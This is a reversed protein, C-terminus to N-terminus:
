RRDKFKVALFLLRTSGVQVEDLHRLRQTVGTHIRNGNLWTGNLSELDTLWCVPGDVRVLCHCESVEPDVVVFDAKAGRGVVSESAQIRHVGSPDEGEIVALVQLQPSGFSPMCVARKQTSSRKM